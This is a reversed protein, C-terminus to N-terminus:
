IYIHYVKFFNFPFLALGEGKSFVQGQVMSEGELGRKFNKLDGRRGESPHLKSGGKLFSLHPSPTRAIIISLFDEKQRQRWVTVGDKLSVMVNKHALDNIQIHRSKTKNKSKFRKNVHM